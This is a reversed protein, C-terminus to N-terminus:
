TDLDLPIVEVAHESVRLMSADPVAQWRYRDRDLPESVVVTADPPLPNTGGDSATLALGRGWYLSPSDGDSSYRAAWLVEGDTVAISMRFPSDILHDRRITEIELIMSRMAAVPDDQLGRSLALAFLTESDTQGQRVGYYAPQLRQDVAQHIRDWGGVDGNHQFLWREYRFPHTNIRAVAGRTVARVHALFLGAHVHRSLSAVNEDNWAARIERYLGPDLTGPSYWGVGVGDGNVTYPTERAQRSQQLLSHEPEMLLTSMPIAPGRYALWRCM